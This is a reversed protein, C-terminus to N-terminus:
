RVLRLARPRDPESAPPRPRHVLGPADSLTSAAYDPTFDITGDVFLIDDFGYLLGASWTPFPGGPSATLLAFSAAGHTNPGSDSPGVGQPHSVIVDDATGIRLDEGPAHDKLPGSGSAVLYATLALATPPAVFVLLATALLISLM